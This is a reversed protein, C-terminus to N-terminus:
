WCVVGSCAVRPLPKEDELTSESPLVGDRQLGNFQIGSKQNLVHVLVLFIIGM